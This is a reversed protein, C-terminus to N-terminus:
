HPEKAITKVDELMMKREDDSCAVVFSYYKHGLVTIGCFQFIGLDLTLDMAKFMGSDEYVHEPAGITNITYVKKDTLLGKNDATYAFNLSFVRDMYGRLLATFSGWWVPSIFVLIDAWRVHEQEVKIDEPYKKEKFGELEHGKLVPDFGMDYLDRIRVEHGAEQLSSTLTQAIAKNFSGPNPHSYVLLFKM